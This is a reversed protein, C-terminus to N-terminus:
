EKAKQERGKKEAEAAARRSPAIAKGFLPVNKETLQVGRQSTARREARELISETLTDSDIAYSPHEKNFKVVDTDIVKAFGKMDKNRFERDLREIIKNRENNIRQELGIVKFNVYQTNSLLDSRFGIAQGLLVGGTFGDKAILQAGKNDKAGEKYLEYATAFNRVGAPTLKQVGKKYDGEMLAAYGEAWSLIMNASPGAKELAMAQAEDRITKAEKTDRMWLNSLSVRSSIDLGTLANVPGRELIDALSKGAIKTGGLQEQMWVTRFWFLFDMDRLEKLEKDEDGMDKWMTSLFGLTLQAVWPLAAVGGLVATMGLTGFFKKAAEARTRGDMPKIIERFNNVLFLTVHLPYMMFQTLFKGVANRMWRPRSYQGYNGMSEKIVQVAADVSQEHTMGKQRNLTYAIGGVIERSLRETSHMLGGLVLVDVTGKGFSIIPHSSRKSIPTNKYDLAETSYTSTFQDRAAMDRYARRLDPSIGKAYEMSPAVWVKAGSPLTEYTGVTNWIKMMRGFERSVDLPNHNAMLVPLGTQIISLPQLFASAWAGLYWIFSTKNLAGVIKEATSQPKPNLDLAVRREMEEVYPRYISRSPLSDYAQSVSLRLLRGYKLRSLQVGMKVSATAVNRLLDTSFGTVGERHIFQKRFSQEPMTQLYIQYIADKLADRTETTMDGTNPLADIAAFLAKLMESSDSSETRLSALSDEARFEGSDLLDEELQDIRKQFEADSENKGQEIREAVFGRLAQDRADKSEFMFFKRNKGSGIRLWYEGYRVLPFYPTIKNGTEYIARIKKMLNAQEAIALGSNTIQDDLLQTFYDSLVKFHDRIRKYLQQGERGLAKYADDLQKNRSRAHPDAPDFPVGVESAAVTAVNALKNLKAELGPNDRYVLDMDKTLRGTAKILQQAMGSMEELLRNTRKLEPVVDSAWSALFDNTPIRVLAQRQLESLKGWLNRLFPIVKRPDQAMQLVSVAQGYGEGRESEEYKLNARAVAADLEQQSVVAESDEEAERDAAESLDIQRAAEAGQRTIESLQPRRGEGAGREGEVTGATGEDPIQESGADKFRNGRPKYDGDRFEKSLFKFVDFNSDIHKTLSAKLAALNFGPLTELAIMIDQMESAFEAGHNRQKFHALEHIMTGIMSLAVDTPTNERKTATPNIFMGSFPLKISVGYYENDISTGIAETALGAYRTPDSAVLATRLAMFTQGIEALYKDFRSGFQARAKDSISPIEILGDEVMKAILKQEDQDKYVKGDKTAVWNRDKDVEVKWGLKELSQSDFAGDVTNDHIMVSNPDIENQPISLEDIRISVNKLDDPTLEPIQRNNVYLVGERVEVKDGPKILTFANDTAPAKPELKEPATVTGNAKVYQVTGFNIVNSAMDLQSYIATIYGFIQKFDKEAVSSFRQRNLDFPYGADEPKVNKSPSIDVYFKRKIKKGDWGPRDKINTNFQWLGNSLIHTNDDWSEVKEKSVYIRAVGWEFKVNAFPTYDDIPFQDGIKLATPGYGRDFTVEIDTFLPSFKLVEADELYYPTFDIKKTDGTSSDVYEEPIQVIVVTGHGDPFTDAYRAIVDPDTTKTITPGREPDNLAAKLDDGTTSMRSLVGDRLSVVELKKNEFLFLMKAVGLGGSARDTEKVTGAIQLFQNGMVEAPMGLGNDIIRITRDNKDVKIDIKGKTLQGKDIAGKIADFSNQFLEKISVKAIDDPTGYLKNGLMKALREVNASPKAKTEETGFMRNAIEGAVTEGPMATSLLQDTAIILDTLANTETEDMGFWDRISQVFRNFFPVDEEYGRALMLFDQMAPDTLGYAVFENPDYFINAGDGRALVEIERMKGINGLRLMDNYTSGASTMTRILDQYVKVVPSDFKGKRIYEQAIKIKKSTAAHLLEHLVTTNNVGQFKGYSEGRVYIAREGTKPNEVYMGISTSWAKAHRQLQDPLADGQEIVVIKVGNVFGRLRQALKKEFGSGTKIIHTIAQAATKFKAFRSDPAGKSPKTASLPQEQRQRTAEYGKQLDAIEQPRIDPRSLFQKLRKGQASTHQGLDRQQNQLAVLNRLIELRKTRADEPTIDGDEVQRQLLDLSIGATDVARRVKANIANVTKKDAAKAAKVEPAEAKRGRKTAPKAPAATPTVGYKDQLIAAAVEAIDQRGNAVGYNYSNLLGEQSVYMPSTINKIAAVLPNDVAVRGQAEEEAQLSNGERSLASYQILFLPDSTAVAAPQKREGGTTTATTQRPSVVGAPETVGAGPATSEAGPQGAVEAGTRDTRGVPSEAGAERTALADADQEEQARAMALRRAQVPDMGTDTFQQTLEEVRTEPPTLVKPGRAIQTIDERDVQNIALRRADEEPIYMTNVYQDTLEDIRRARQEAKFDRHLGTPPEETPEIRGPAGSLEEDTLTPEIRGTEDIQQGIDGPRRTPAGFGKSQAIAAALGEYSTDRQYPIREPEKGEMRERYSRIAKNAAAGGGFMLGAQAVTGVATDMAGSIFEKIGAEKNLGHIKDVGFQGAYTVQEGPIERALAKAYYAALDSLPVGEATKRLAKMEAGLAFREGIVEFAAYAGARAAAEDPALKLRRGEDYTQGFSQAFMNALVLPQSGTLTGVLMAPAQQIISSAADEFIRVPALKAQGMNKLMADLNNLKTRTDQDDEGTFDAIARKVGYYGQQGGAVGKAGTRKLVRATQEIGTMDPRLGYEQQIRTIEEPTETLQALPPEEYGARARKWAEAEAAKAEMGQDILRQTRAELSTDLMQGTKTTVAAQKAARDAYAQGVQAYVGGRKQLQQIAAARQEQPLSDLYANTSAVFKPDVGLSIPSPEPPVVTGELISQRKPRAPAAAMIESGGMGMPDSVTPTDSPAVAPAAPKKALPSKMVEWQGGVLYAREGTDPNEAVQDPKVWQNDVLFVVEGTNPNVAKEM